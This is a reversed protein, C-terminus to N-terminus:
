YPTRWAIKIRVIARGYRELHKEAYPDKSRKLLFKVLAPVGDLASLPETTDLVAGRVLPSQYDRHTRRAQYGFCVSERGELPSTAEVIPFPTLGRIREDLAIVAQWWGRHYLGNRLAVLSAIEVADDLSTPFVSKCRIPTVDVGDYYDGGCSERFKGTWFSKDFNVKLGFAELEEAVPVAFDTPVIIDDGYVRVRDVFSLVDRASFQQRLEGKGILHKEIAIFIITLFVMAEVPFTLASGM